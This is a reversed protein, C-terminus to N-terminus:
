CLSRSAKGRRLGAPLICTHTLVNWVDSQLVHKCPFLLSSFEVTCVLVEHFNRLCSRSLWWCLFLGCVCLTFPFPFYLIRCGVSLGPPLRLQLTWRPRRGHRLRLRQTPEVHDAFSDNSFTNKSAPFTAQPPLTGVLFLLTLESRGSVQAFWPHGCL